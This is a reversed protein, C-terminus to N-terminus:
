LGGDHEVCRIRKAELEADGFGVHEAELFSLRAEGGEVRDVVRNGM